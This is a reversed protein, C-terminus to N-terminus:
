KHAGFAGILQINSAGGSLSFTGTIEKANPGYFGGGFTGTAGTLAIGASNTGVATTGAFSNGKITGANFLIDTATSTGSRVGYIGGTVAGSAFNATLETVGTVTAMVTSGSAAKYGLVGIASGTYLASGTTPMQSTPTAVGVGYVGYSSVLNTTGSATQQGTAWEGFDSYQLGVNGGVRYLTVQDGQVSPFGPVSSIASAQTTGYPLLTAATAGNSAQTFSSGAFQVSQNNSVTQQTSFYPIDPAQLGINGNSYYVFNAPPVNVTTTTGTTGGVTSTGDVAFTTQIQGTTTVTKTASLFGSGFTATLPTGNSLANLQPVTSSVDNSAFSQIAGFSGIVQAQNTGGSLSFVGVAETASTGYFNGGFSGSAGSIDFATGASGASTQGTFSNGNVSGSFNIANVSGTPLSTFSSAARVDGISGTLQNNAFNVTLSALGGFVGSGQTTAITGLANGTFVVSGSKPLSGSPTTNGVAYVGLIQANSSNTAASTWIGFDSYQLDLTLQGQYLTVSAGAASIGTAFRGGAAQVPTEQTFFSTFTVQDQGKTPSINPASLGLNANTYQTIAANQAQKDVTFALPAGLAGTLTASLFGSNANANLTTGPPNSVLPPTTVPQSSADHHTKVVCGTALTCLSAGLLLRMSRGRMMGVGYYTRDPVASRATLTGTPGKKEVPQRETAM